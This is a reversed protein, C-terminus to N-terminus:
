LTFSIESNSLKSMTATIEASTRSPLLLAGLDNVTQNVALQTATLSSQAICAATSLM